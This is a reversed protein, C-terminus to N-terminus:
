LCLLLMGPNCANGEVRVGTACACQYGLNSRNPLCLHSCPHTGQRCPYDNTPITYNSSFVFMDGISHGTFDYVTKKDSGTMKDASMIKSHGFYAWFIRGSMITLGVPNKGLQDLLVQLHRGNVTVSVIAQRDDTSDAWYLRSSDGTPSM